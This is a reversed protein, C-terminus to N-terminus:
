SEQKRRAGWRGRDRPSIVVRHEVFRQAWPNAEGNTAIVVRVRAHAAVAKQILGGAGLSEDDPHPALVLVRDRSTIPRLERASNDSANTNTAFAAVVFLSGLFTRM